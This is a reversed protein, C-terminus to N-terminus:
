NGSQHEWLPRATSDRRGPSPATTSRHPTPSAHPAPEHRRADTTRNSSYSDNTLLRPDVSSLIVVGNEWSEYSIALLTMDMGITENTPRDLLPLVVKMSRTM